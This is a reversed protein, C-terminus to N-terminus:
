SAPKEQGNAKPLKIKGEELLDQLFQDLVLVIFGNPTEGEKKALTEILKWMTEPVRISKSVTDVRKPAFVRKFM